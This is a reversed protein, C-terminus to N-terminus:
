DLNDLTENLTEETTRLKARCFEVLESAEKVKKTLQDVTLDGTEIESITKELQKLADDYSKFKKM